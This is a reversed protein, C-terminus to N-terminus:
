LSVNVKESVLFTLVPKLSSGQFSATSELTQIAAQLTEGAEDPMNEFLDVLTPYHRRFTAWRVASGLETEFQKMKGDAHLAALAVLPHAEFEPQANPYARWSRIYGKEAQKSNFLLPRFRKWRLPSM